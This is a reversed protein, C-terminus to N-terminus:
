LTQIKYLIAIKVLEPTSLQAIICLSESGLFKLTCFQAIIYVSEGNIVQSRLARDRDFSKVFLKSM